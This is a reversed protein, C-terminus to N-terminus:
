IRFDLLSGLGDDDYGDDDDDDDDDPHSLRPRKPTPRMMMSLHDWDNEDNTDMIDPICLSQPLEHNTNHGLEEDM